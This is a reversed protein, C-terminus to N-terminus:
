KKYGMKVSIAERVTEALGNICPRGDILLIGLMNRTATITTFRPVMDRESDLYTEGTAFTLSCQKENMEIRAPDFGDNKVLKGEVQRYGLDDGMRVVGQDSLARFIGLIGADNWKREIAQQQLTKQADFESWYKQRAVIGNQVIQNHIKRDNDLGKIIKEVDTKM